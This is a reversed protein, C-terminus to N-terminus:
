LINFPVAYHAKVVSQTASGYNNDVNNINADATHLNNASAVHPVPNNNVVSSEPTYMSTTKGDGDARILLRKSGISSVPGTHHHNVRM